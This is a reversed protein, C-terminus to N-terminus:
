VAKIEVSKPQVKETKPLHVMLMGEKFEASLKDKAVDEPLTFSRFFSGYSRELRHYKRGKEEKEKRREGQITVSSDQMTVKVDKRDVEPLEAKILYEKEDEAIDVTPAWDATALEERSAESRAPMRGFIRNFRSGIEELERFPDWRMLSSM